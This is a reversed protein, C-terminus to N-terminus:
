FGYGQAIQAFANLVFLSTAMWLRVWVPSFGCTYLVGAREAGLAKGTLAVDRLVLRGGGALLRTGARDAGFRKGSLDVGGPM